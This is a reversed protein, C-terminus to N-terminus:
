KSGTESVFIRCVAPARVRETVGHDPLSRYPGIGVAASRAPIGQGDSKRWRRSDMNKIRKIKVFLKDTGLIKQLKIGTVLLGKGISFL